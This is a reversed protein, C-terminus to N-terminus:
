AGEMEDANTIYGFCYIVCYIYIIFGREINNAGDGKCVRIRHTLGSCEGWCGKSVSVGYM